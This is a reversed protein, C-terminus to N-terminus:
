GARIRRCFEICMFGSAGPEVRSARVRAIVWGCDPRAQCQKFNLARCVLPEPDVPQAHAAGMALAVAAAAVIAALTRM